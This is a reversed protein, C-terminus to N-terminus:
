QLSVTDSSTKPLLSLPDIVIGGAVPKETNFDLQIGDARRFVGPRYRESCAKDGARCLIAICGALTSYISQDAGEHGAMRPTYRVLDGEHFPVRRYEEHSMHVMVPTGKADAPLLFVRNRQIYDTEDDAFGKWAGGKAWRYLKRMEDDTAVRLLHGVVIHGYAAAQRLGCEGRSCGPPRDAATVAAMSWGLCLAVAWQRM